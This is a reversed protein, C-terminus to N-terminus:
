VTFAFSELLDPDLRVRELLKLRPAGDLEGGGFSAIAPKGGEGILLPAHYIHVVDALRRRLLSAHLAPGGEALLRTIGRKGLLQLVAAIDARGYEDAAVREIEVGQALLADGGDLKTTFLITPQKPASRVLESTLPTRLHSDVVVRIPSRRELGPLRCTLAPNDALVTGIGALIVDHQARLLHGHARAREGTIWKSNGKADAVYGDASQAIKFAVLPRGQTIRNFFGLNLARAEAELVGRTVAIGAGELRAFGAGAVRPDPDVIAGVVRALGAKVLADACPPTVGHHACPELTVYACAGRAAAGAQALAVIEAHPRGGPQTHGRGLVRGTASVIVCGVAPNPAVNGLARTALRLAHRMHTIDDPATKNL